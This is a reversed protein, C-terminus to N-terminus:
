SFFCLNTDFDVVAFSGLLHLATPSPRVPHWSFTEGPSWALPSGLSPNTSTLEGTLSAWANAPHHSSTPMALPVKFALPVADDIHVLPSHLCLAHTRMQSHTRNRTPNSHKCQTLPHRSSAANGKCKFVRLFPCSPPLPCFRLLVRESGGSNHRRVKRGM